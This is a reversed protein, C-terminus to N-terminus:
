LTSAGFIKKDKVTRVNCNCRNYLIGYKAGIGDGHGDTKAGTTM